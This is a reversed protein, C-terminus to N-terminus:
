DQWALKMTRAGTKRGTLVRLDQFIEWMNRWGILRAGAGYLIMFPSFLGSSRHALALLQEAIAVEGVAGAERAAFFIWRSFHQMEPCGEDVSGALACEYLSSFFHLQDAPALWENRGTQRVQADHDRHESVIADVFILKANLAGVRADYEWDQSYRLDSWSGVQDCLARRYLPTHTCWWRDVLLLPFLYSHDGINKYSEKLVRGTGDILRSRGYAVSCDPNKRLADVQSEFKNPDLRDDSDLYQIFEGSAALRGAERALGVGRNPLHIAKVIASNCAAIRDVEAGTGDTSGDDVLIIEFCPYNQALVSDVAEGLWRSRNYVPIVTSVLGESVHMKSGELNGPNLTVGTKRGSILWSPVLFSLGDRAGCFLFYGCLCFGVLM